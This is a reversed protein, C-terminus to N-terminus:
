IFYTFCFHINISESATLTPSVRTSGNDKSVYISFQTSNATGHGTLTGGSFGINDTVGIVPASRGQSSANISTFPLGSIALGFSTSNNVYTGLSSPITMIANGVVTVQRGIKTYYGTSTNSTPTFGSGPALTVTWTGEEYDDLKNASATGGSGDLYIGGTVVVGDSKTALKTSNNHNLDVAGGNRFRALVEDVAGNSIILDDNAIYANASDQFISLQQSAGLQFRGSTAGTANVPIQVQGGSTIRLRETVSSAGDATTKFVLRSPYDSSGQDADAEAAIVASEAYSGGAKTDFYIAGLGNDASVSTDNRGLVLTGGATTAVQLAASGFTEMASDINVLLRQSSDVRAAETGDVKFGLASSGNANDPDAELFVKSSDWSIKHDQSENYGFRIEPDSSSMVALPATPLNTGVGVNGASTIRLRESGGTEVTVTDAAPFRIATNTDGTHVIKDAIDVDGTVSLTGGVTANGTASLTTVIGTTAKLTAVTAIGTFDVGTPSLTITGVGTRSNIKNVRIESAM